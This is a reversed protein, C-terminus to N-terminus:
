TAEWCSLYTTRGEDLAKQEYKSIVPLWLSRDPTPEVLVFSESPEVEDNGNTSSTDYAESANKPVRQSQMGNYSTVQKHSWEHYGIHDTALYLRGGCSPTLSQNIETSEEENGIIASDKRPTFLMRRIQDLVNMQLIRFSSQNTGMFPDPFTILVASITNDPIFPLLKTGDGMYIRVNSYLSRTSTNNLHEIHNCNSININNKNFLTFDTWYKQNEIASQMRTCITGVGGKHMEAGIFYKHRQMNSEIDDCISLCLLNDGLGFGIELWIDDGHNDNYNPFINKWQLKQGTPHVNQTTNGTIISHDYGDNTHNFTENRVDNRNPLILQLGLQQITQIAQRQRPSIKRGSQRKWWLPKKSRYLTTSISDDENNKNIEGDFPQTSGVDNNPENANYTQDIEIDWIDNSCSDSDYCRNEDGM